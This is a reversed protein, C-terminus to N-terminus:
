SPVSPNAITQLKDLQDLAETLADSQRELVMGLTVEIKDPYRTIRAIQVVLYDAFNGFGGFGVTDGVHVTTIDYTAANITIPSNYKIGSRESLFNNAILNATNQITVRNDSIRDLRRRGQQGDISTLSTYKSFLNVGGGLDGGSFYVVNRVQQVSGGIQIQELHRGKIFKHTATTLTRKFYIALTAPDVYWYFDGGALDRCKQIGELVTNVKFTYSVTQGSADVSGSTVLGGADNYSSIISSLITSPDTSTFPSQTAGATYYTTFYLDQALAGWPPASGAGGYNITYVSGGAYNDANKYRVDVRLGDLYFFLTQGASVSIPTDFTFTYDTAADSNVTRTAVGLLTGSNYAGTFGTLLKLDINQTEGLNTNKLKVKIASISTVGAGVTFTQGILTFFAGKDGYNADSMTFTSDETTQSQDTTTGGEILYDQLDVGRSIALFTIKDDQSGMIANWDEMWGDFAIKGNPYDSSVEYVKLINNEQILALPNYSGVVDLAREEYLIAGAEDLIANGTEDLIAGLPQDAVDATMDVEVSLQVANSNIDQSYVFDSTVNQLVGLFTTGKYVQYIYTKQIDAM